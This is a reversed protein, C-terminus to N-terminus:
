GSSPITFPFSMMVAIVILLVHTDSFRFLRFFRYLGVARILHHGVKCIIFLFHFLMAALTHKARQVVEELEHSEKALHASVFYLLLWGAVDRLEPDM